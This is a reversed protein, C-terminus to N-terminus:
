INSTQKYISNNIQLSVQYKNAKWLANIVLNKSPMVSPIQEDWGDFTYGVKIPITSFDIQEGSHLSISPIATGGDTKFSITYSKDESIPNSINIDKQYRAYLKNIKLNQYNTGDTVIIGSNIDTYWGIFTYGSKIPTPLNSYNGDKLISIKTTNLVGGNADLEIDIYEKSNTQEEQKPETEEIENIKIDLKYFYDTEEELTWVKLIYKDTIDTELKQNMLINALGINSLSDFGEFTSLLVGENESGIIYKDNKILSIMIKENKINNKDSDSFLVLNYKTEKSAKIEFYYDNKDINKDKYLVIESNKYYSFNINDFSVTELNKVYKGFIIFGIILIFLILSVILLFKKNKM